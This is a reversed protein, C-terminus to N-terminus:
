VDVFNFNSKCPNEVGQMRLEEIESEGSELRALTTSSTYAAVPINTNEHLWKLTAAQPPLYSSFAADDKFIKSFRAESRVTM